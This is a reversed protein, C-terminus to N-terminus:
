NISPTFTGDSKGSIKIPQAGDYDVTPEITEIMITVTTSTLANYGLTFTYKTGITFPMNGQDYTLAELSLDASKVGAVVTQYGGGTFNNTPIINAKMSLSWKGFAYPTGSIMVSGTIGTQPNYTM